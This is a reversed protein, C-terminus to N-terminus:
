IEIAQNQLYILSEKKLFLTVEDEQQIRLSKVRKLEYNDNTLVEHKDTHM